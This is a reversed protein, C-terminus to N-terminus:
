YRPLYFNCNSLSYDGAGSDGRNIAKHLITDGTTSDLQNVNCKHDVLTQALGTQATSLALDLPLQGKEDCENLRSQLQFQSTNWICAVSM